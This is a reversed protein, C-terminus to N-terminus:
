IVLALIRGCIPVALWDGDDAYDWEPPENLILERDAMPRDTTKWKLPPHGSDM